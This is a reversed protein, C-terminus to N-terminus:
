LQLFSSAPASASGATSLVHLTIESLTLIERDRETETETETETEREREREREDRRHGLLMLTQLVSQKASEVCGLDGDSQEEKM